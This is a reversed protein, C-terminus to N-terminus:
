PNPAGNLQSSNQGVTMWEPGTIRGVILPRPVAAGGGIEIDDTLAEEADAFRRADDTSLELMPQGTEVQGGCTSRM